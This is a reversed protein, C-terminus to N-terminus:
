LLICIVGGKGENVIRELARRLKVRAEEPVTKENLGECVMGRFTKGFMDTDWLAQPDREYGEVIGKAIEEGRASEGTVPTVESHVDVRVVHYSPADASLKVGCRGGRRTLEPPRLQMDEESPRVIGYGEAKARAFAPAFADSFKKAERLSRVYSMLRAEDTLDEGCEQGLVRLFAGEKAALRFRATGAAADTEYGECFVEANDALATEFAGCDALCRVSPAAERLAGLVSSVCASDEPLACMWAPLDFDIRRAPFALLLCSFLEGYDENGSLCDATCAPAGLKERLQACLEEGDTGGNVLVVFPTGAERLARAIEKEPTGSRPAFNGAVLVACTCPVNGEAVCLRLSGGAGGLEGEARMKEEDLTLSLARAVGRVFSSKGAGPAGAVAVTCEGGSRASLGGIIEELM